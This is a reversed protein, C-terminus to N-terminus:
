EHIKSKAVRKRENTTKNDKRRNIKKFPDSLLMIIYIQIYTYVRIITDNMESSLKFDFKKAQMKAIEENSDRDSLRM